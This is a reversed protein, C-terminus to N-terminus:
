ICVYICRYIYLYTHIYIHLYTHMYIYLSYIYTYMYTRTNSKSSGPHHFIPKWPRPKQSSSAEVTVSRHTHHDRLAGMFMRIRFLRMTIAHSPPHYYLLTYHPNQVPNTPAGKSIGAANVLTRVRGLGSVIKAFAVCFLIWPLVQMAQLKFNHSARFIVRFCSLLFVFSLGSFFRCFSRITSLFFMWILFERFEVCVGEWTGM